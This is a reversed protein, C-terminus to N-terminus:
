KECVCVCSRCRQFAKFVICLHKLCIVVSQTAFPPCRLGYVHRRNLYGPTLNLAAPSRPSFPFFADAHLIVACM